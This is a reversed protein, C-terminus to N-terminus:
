LPDAVWLGRRIGANSSALMSATSSSYPTLRGHTSHHASAGALCTAPAAAAEHTEGRRGRRKEQRASPCRGGRLFGGGGRRAIRAHLTVLSDLVLGPGPVAAAERVRRMELPRIEVAGEAVRRHLLVSPRFELTDGGAVVAMMISCGPRAARHAVGVACRRRLSDQRMLNTVEVVCKVSTGPKGARSAMGPIRHGGAVNIAHGTVGFMMLGFGGAHGTVPDARSRLMRGLNVDGAAGSTMTLAALPDIPPRSLGACDTVRAPRLVVRFAGTRHAVYDRRNRRGRPVLVRARQM